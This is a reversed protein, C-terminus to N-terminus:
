ESTGPPLPCSVRQTGEDLAADAWFPASQFAPKLREVLDRAYGAGQAVPMFAWALLIGANAKHTKVWSAEMLQRVAAGLDAAHGTRLWQPQVGLHWIAYLGSKGDFMTPNFGMLRPFPTGVPQWQVPSTQPTAAIGRLLKGFAIEEMRGSKHRPRLIVRAFFANVALVIVGAAAVDSLFHAGQAIRVGGVALGFVVGAFIGATRWKPPLLFAYAAIWFAIAAHGSTFACNSTCQDTMQWPPTYIAAGGFEAIDKPRARGWTPKLLAEVILGPGILITTLLFALERGTPHPIPKFRAVVWALGCIAFSAIVLDPAAVRVFELMGDTDWTFGRGPIYFLRALPLDFSYLVFLVGLLALAWRSPHERIDSTLRRGM